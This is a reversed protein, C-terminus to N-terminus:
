GPPAPPPRWLKQNVYIFTRAGGTCKPSRPTPRTARIYDPWQDRRPQQQAPTAPRRRSLSWSTNVLKQRRSLFRARAAIDSFTLVVPPPGAKDRPHPLRYAGQLTGGPLEMCALLQLKKLENLLSDPRPRRRSCTSAGSSSGAAAVTVTLPRAAATKWSAGPAQHHHRHHFLNGPEQAPVDAWRPPALQPTM